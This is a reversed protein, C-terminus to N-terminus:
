EALKLAQELWFKGAKPGGNCEGDSEGPPKTWLWADVLPSGTDSTPFAGLKRGAPNCWEDKPASGNGNRSTDIVFHAGGVLKSLENGYANNEATSVYNSTNLAFGNAHEVGAKQLREAMDKAPLWHAHGADVYVAAHANQRLVLVADRILALRETQQAENLCDKLLGLADPEVVFAAPKDGLGASVERIWHRYADGKALGGKSFNGCDRNPVNYVVFLPMAGSASHVTNQVHRKVDGSWEGLWVASPQSAIKDILLSQAPNADKLSSLVEAAQSHPNVWMTAGAFPNGAAKAPIPAEPINSAELPQAVVSYESNARSADGGSASRAREQSEACGLFLPLCFVILSPRIAKRMSGECSLDQTPQTTLM